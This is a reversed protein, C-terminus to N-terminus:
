DNIINNAEEQPVVKAKGDVELVSIRFGNKEIRDYDHGADATVSFFIIFPEEGHNVTRHAWLPPVYVISGPQMFKADSEGELNEMLLYGKGSLCVYIEATSLKTHYHGKTLFYERGVKGPYLISTGFLLHGEKGPVISQYVEYMLPDDKKLFGAVKKSDLFFSAVDSLKRELKEVGNKIFGNELDINLEFPKM